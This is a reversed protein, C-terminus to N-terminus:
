SNASSSYIQRQLLQPDTAGPRIHSCRNPAVLSGDIKALMDGYGCVPLQCASIFAHSRQLFNEKRRRLSMIFLSLFARPKKPCLFPWLNPRKRSRQYRDFRLPFSGGAVALNASPFIEKLSFHGARGRLGGSGCKRVSLFGKFYFLLGIGAKVLLGWPNLM